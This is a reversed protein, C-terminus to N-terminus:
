LVSISGSGTNVRLEPGGGNVAGDVRKKSVKGDVSFHEALRVGGSRSEADLDVGLDDLDPDFVKRHVLRVQGHVDGVPSEVKLACVLAVGLAAKVMQRKVFNM